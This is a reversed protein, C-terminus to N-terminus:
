APDPPPSDLPACRVLVEYGEVGVLGGGDPHPDMVIEGDKAVCCHGIGRPGEGHAIALGRPPTDGPIWARWWGRARLFRNVTNRYETWAERSFDGEDPHPLEDLPIAILSAICAAYCGNPRQQIRPPGEPPAVFIGLANRTHHGFETNAHTQQQSRSGPM